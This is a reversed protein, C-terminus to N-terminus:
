RDPRGALALALQPRTAPAFSRLRIATTRAKDPNQIRTRPRASHPHRERRDKVAAYSWARRALLRTFCEGLYALASPADAGIMQARAAFPVNASQM